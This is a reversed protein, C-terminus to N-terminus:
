NKAAEKAPVANEDGKLVEQVAVVGTNGLKNALAKVEAKTSPFPVPVGDVESVTAVMVAYSLWASAADGAMASGAAEILDLMDGPGVEKLTLKRGDSTTVESPLSM